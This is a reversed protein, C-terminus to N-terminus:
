ENDYMSSNEIHQIMCTIEEIHGELEVRTQEYEQIDKISVMLNTHSSLIQDVELNLLEERLKVIVQTLYKRTDKYSEQLELEIVIRM